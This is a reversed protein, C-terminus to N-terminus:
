GGENDMLEICYPILPEGNHPYEKCYLKIRQGELLKPVTKLDDFLVTMPNAIDTLHEGSLVTLHDEAVELVTVLLYSSSESEQIIGDSINGCGEEPAMGANDQSKMNPPFLSWLGLVLCCCAALAGLSKWPFQKKRQRLKDVPILFEEPLASIADHLIDARM